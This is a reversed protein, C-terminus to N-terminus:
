VLKIDKIYDIYIINKDKLIIKREIDDIKKIFGKISKYNDEDYYTIIVEKNLNNKIENLKIDLLALADYELNIMMNKELEDNKIMDSFGTLAAFPAFISARKEIPMSLHNKSIHRPLDIIDSYKNM